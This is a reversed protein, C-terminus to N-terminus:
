CMIFCPHDSVGLFRVFLVFCSSQLIRIEFYLGSLSFVGVWNTTHLSFCCNCKEQVGGKYSLWHLQEGALHETSIFHKCLASYSCDLELCTRREPSDDNPQFTSSKGFLAFYCIVSYWDRRHFLGLFKFSGLEFYVGSLSFSLGCHHNAILLVGQRKGMYAERRVLVITSSCKWISQSYLTFANPKLLM